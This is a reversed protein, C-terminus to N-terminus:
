FGLDDAYEDRYEDRKELVQEVYARVAPDPIDDVELAAGGWESM